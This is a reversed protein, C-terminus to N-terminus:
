AYKHHGIPARCGYGKLLYTGIKRNEPMLPSERQNVSLFDCDKRLVKFPGMDNISAIYYATVLATLANHYTGVTAVKGYM